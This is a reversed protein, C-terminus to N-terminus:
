CRTRRCLFQLGHCQQCTEVPTRKPGTMTITRRDTCLPHASGQLAPAFVFMKNAAIKWMTVPHVLSSSNSHQLVVVLFDRPHAPDDAMSDRAIDHLVLAAHTQEVCIKCHVRKGHSSPMLSPMLWQVIWFRNKSKSASSPSRACLYGFYMNFMSRRGGLIVKLLM